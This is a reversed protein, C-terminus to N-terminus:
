YLHHIANTAKFLVATVLASAVGTTILLGAADAPMNRATAAVSSFVAESLTPEV